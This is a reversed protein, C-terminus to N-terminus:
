LPHRATATKGHPALLNKYRGAPEAISRNM